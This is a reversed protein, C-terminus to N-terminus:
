GSGNKVYLTQVKYLQGRLDVMKIKTHESISYTIICQTWIFKM